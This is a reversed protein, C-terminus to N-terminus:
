LSDGFLGPQDADSGKAPIEQQAVRKTSTGPENEVPKIELGEALPRLLDLPPQATEERSLWRAYDKPQLIVPMRNHVFQSTETADTTLVTFSQLWHGNAPDKWASWLGAFAFPTRGEVTFAFKPNNRPRLKQWEFYADAPVLCRHREFARKWM